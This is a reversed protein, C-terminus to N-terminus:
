QGILMYGSWLKPYATSENQIMNLKAERLAQAYSSGDLVAQYFDLMFQHTHKDSIKWLSYVINKAGSYILGRTMAILGEGKVLKGIGTECASLVMLDASIDLNYMEGAYLIGDNSEELVFMEANQDICKESVKINKPDPQSFVLGSLVPKEDNSFGHTAIHVINFYKLQHKFYKENADNSLIAYADYGKSQYLKSITEVEKKAYPLENFTKGDVSISRLTLSSSLSNRFLFNNKPINANNGKFIPAYGIFNTNEINRNSDKIARRKGKEWLSSSYHYTINYDKILYDLETFNYNGFDQFDPKCLTEFPVYNLYSDPIIILNEKNLILNEIPAILVSYLFYSLETIHKKNGGKNINRYYSL